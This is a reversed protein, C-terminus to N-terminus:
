AVKIVDTGQSEGGTTGNEGSGQSFVHVRVGQTVKMLFNKEDYFLTPGNQPGQPISAFKSEEERDEEKGGESAEDRVEESEQGSILPIMLCLLFLSLHVARAGIM